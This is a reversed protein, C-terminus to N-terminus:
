LIVGTPNGEDDLMEVGHFNLTDCIKKWRTDMDVDFLVPQFGARLYGLVAPLRWDDSKLRVIRNEKPMEKDLKNMAYATMSWGLKHGRAEPKAAVMHLLGVGNELVLATSTAVPVNEKDCVFFVDREPVLEKIALMCTDWAEMGDNEGLLGHKCIEVWPAIDGEQYFRISFGEEISFAPITNMKNIMRLQEM